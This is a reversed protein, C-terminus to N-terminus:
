QGQSGLCCDGVGHRVVAGGLGPGLSDAGDGPESIGSVLCNNTYFRLKYGIYGFVFSSNFKIFGCYTILGFKPIICEYCDSSCDGYYLYVIAKQLSQWESNLIIKNM